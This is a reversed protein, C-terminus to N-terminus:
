TCLSVRAPSKVFLAFVKGSDLTISALYHLDQLCDAQHTLSLANLGECLPRGPGQRGHQHCGWAAPLGRRSGRAGLLGM